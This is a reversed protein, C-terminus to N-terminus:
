ASTADRAEEVTRIFNALIRANDGKRWIMSLLIAPPLGDIPVLAVDHPAPSREGAIILGIGLGAAVLGYSIDVATVEAAIDPMIGAAAFSSALRGFFRPSQVRSPWIMPAGALDAITADTRGALPHRSPVVAVIRDYGIPSVDFERIDDAEEYVFGVDIEAQRLKERQLDSTMPAFRLAIEPYSDRFRQLAQGLLARRVMGESFSIRLTGLTGEASRTVRRAAEDVDGLIRRVDELLLKGAETLRVGRAQREFLLTDGLERELDAIRRSLASQAINLRSAARHFSLEEAVALFFTFHKMVSLHRM